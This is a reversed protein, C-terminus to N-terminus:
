PTSSTKYGSYGYVFEQVVTQFSANEAKLCSTVNDPDIVTGEQPLELCAKIETATASGYNPMVSTSYAALLASAGGPLVSDDTGYSQVVQANGSADLPSTLAVQVLVVGRGSVYDAVLGPDCRVPVAIDTAMTLGTSGKRLCGVVEQGPNEKALTVPGIASNAYTPNANVKNEVVITGADANQFLVASVQSNTSMAVQLMGTRMAILGVFTIIVLIVLTVILVVGRQRHPFTREPKM